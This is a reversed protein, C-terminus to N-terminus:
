RKGALVNLEALTNGHDAAAHHAALGCLIQSGAAALHRDDLHHVLDGCALAGGDQGGQQFVVLGVTHRLVGAM